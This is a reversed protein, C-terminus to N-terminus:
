CAFELFIGREERLWSIEGVNGFLRGLNAGRAGLNGESKFCFFVGLHFTMHCSAKVMEEVEVLM